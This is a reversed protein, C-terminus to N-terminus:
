WKGFLELYHLLLWSWWICSYWISTRTVKLTCFQHFILEYILYIKHIYCRYVYQWIVIVILFVLSWYKYIINWNFTISQICPYQKIFFHKHCGWYHITDNGNGNGQTNQLRNCYFSIHVCQGFCTYICNKNTAILRYYLLM